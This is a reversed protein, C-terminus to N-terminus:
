PTMGLRVAEASQVEIADPQVSVWDFPMVLLRLHTIAPRSGAHWRNENPDFYQALETDDWPYFWVESSANPEILFPKRDLSSDAREIELMLLAPKRLKWWLSYRVTLRLRLFDAKNIPWAPNGLDVTASRTSLPYSRVAINLPQPQMFIGAARSDDRQLGFTGPLVEQETRYHRFMWLWVEPSRTFNWVGDVPGDHKRDPIYLGAPAAVRELGAIDKRSLYDGSVLYSQMVGGAVSRGSAMGFITQFPFVAIYDGPGTHKQLYIATTGFMRTFEEAYCARDFEGFGFPCQTLPNRLQAYNHRAIALVLPDHAFFLSCAVAILLALTSVIRSPFSFLVVGTLFVAAYTSVVIHGWDSRVLGSQMTIFAFAFASFLFGSRATIGFPWGRATLGRALFVVGAVVLAVLLRIKGLRSMSTPEIWRYSSLVALSNQWFRFDLPRAMIANIAIVLVLSAGAFALLVFAYSRLARSERRSEWAVGALSLVLAAIAYAGTDASYLFAVACLFAAACGFLMPRLAQERIVYWGRAFVAFLFVALATRGDWPAWFVCLLLLLVARKWAPQEPLLLKLTLYGFLFTCWLPLTTRTAFVAGMSLGMWRSPASSLWQFLPGYTFVVDRGFWLGRSAKFSTDLLWSDDILNPSGSFFLMRPSLSEVPFTALVLLLVALLDWHRAIWSFSRRSVAQSAPSTQGSAM